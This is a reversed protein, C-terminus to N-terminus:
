PSFLLSLWFYKTDFKTSIAMQALEDPIISKSYIKVFIVKSYYREYVKM